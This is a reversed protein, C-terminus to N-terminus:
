PRLAERFAAAKERIEDTVLVDDAQEVEDMLDVAAFLAAQLWPCMELTVVLKGVDKPM